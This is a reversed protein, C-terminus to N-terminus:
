KPPAFVFQQAINPLTRIGHAGLPQSLIAYDYRGGHKQLYKIDHMNVSPDPEISTVSSRHHHCCSHTTPLPEPWTQQSLREYSHSPRYGVTLKHRPPIIIVITATIDM